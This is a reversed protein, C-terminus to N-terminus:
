KFPKFGSHIAAVGNLLNEFEVIEFGASKIMTAFTNQDPFKRISEVLYQYSAKDQAILEGLFPIVHFSYQDYITSLFSNQVSSFELCLFRGGPKLARFAEKLVKDVNTCNRIGFAITYADALNDSVPLDEANGLKFEIAPEGEGNPFYGQQSAREQGVALM